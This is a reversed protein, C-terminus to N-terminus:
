PAKGDSPSCGRRGLRRHRVRDSARPGGRVVELGVAVRQKVLVFMQALSGALQCAVRQLRRAAAAPPLYRDPPKSARFRRDWRTVIVNGVRAIRRGTILGVATPPLAPASGLASLHRGNARRRSAGTRTGACESAGPPAYTAVSPTRERQRQGSRATATTTIGERGVAGGRPCVRPGSVVGPGSSRPQARGVQSPMLRGTNPTRLPRGM